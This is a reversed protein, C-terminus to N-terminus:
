ASEENEEETSYGGDSTEFLTGNQCESDLWDNFGCRYAVADVKKLADSTSYNIGAITLDPYVEDLFEDYRDHLERDTLKNM